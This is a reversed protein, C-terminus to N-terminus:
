SSEIDGRHLIDPLLQRKLGGVPNRCKGADYVSVDGTTKSPSYNHQVRPSISTHNKPNIGYCRFFFVIGQRCAWDGLDTQLVAAILGVLGFLFFIDQLFTIWVWGSINFFKFELSTSVSFTGEWLGPFSCNWMKGTKKDTQQAVDGSM